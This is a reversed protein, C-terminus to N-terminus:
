LGGLMRIILVGIMILIIMAPVSAIAWKVMFIVMSIFDMKIDTIIVNQPISKSGIPILSEESEITGINDLDTVKNIHNCHPCKYVNGYNIKKHSVINEKCNECKFKFPM